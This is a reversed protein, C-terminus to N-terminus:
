CKQVPFQHDDQHQPQFLFFTYSLNATQTLSVLILCTVVPFQSTHPIHRAEEQPGAPSYDEKFRRSWESGLSRLHGGLHHTSSQKFVQQPLNVTQGGFVETEGDTLYPPLLRLV